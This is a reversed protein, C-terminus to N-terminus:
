MFRVNDNRPFDTVVDSLPLSAGDKVACQAEEYCDESREMGQFGTIMIYDGESMLRNAAFAVEIERCKGPNCVGPNIWRYVFSGSPSQATTLVEAEMDEKMEVFCEFADARTASIRVPPRASGLADVHVPMEM